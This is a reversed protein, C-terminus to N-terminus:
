RPEQWLHLVLARSPLPYLHQSRHTSYECSYTNTVLRRYTTPRNM